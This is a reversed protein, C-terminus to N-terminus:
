RTENLRKEIESLDLRKEALEAAQKAFNKRMTEKEAKAKAISDNLVTKVTTDLRDQVKKLEEKGPPKSPRPDGYVGLSSIIPETQVLSGLSNNFKLTALEKLREQGEESELERLSKSIELLQARADDHELELLEIEVRLKVIQAALGGRVPGLRRRNAPKSLWRLFRSVWDWSSQVAIIRMRM